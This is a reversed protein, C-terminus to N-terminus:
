ISPPSSVLMLKGVLFDHRTAPLAKTFIDATQLNSPVHPLTILEREVADRIFVYLTVTLRLTSLANMFFQIWQSKYLVSITLM